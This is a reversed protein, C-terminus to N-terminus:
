FSSCRSCRQRKWLWRCRWFSRPISIDSTCGRRSWSSGSFRSSPPSFWDRRLGAAGCYGHSSPTSRCWRSMGLAFYSLGGITGDDSNRLGGILAMLNFANVSTEHYYAATSTYLKLIWNWRPWDSVARHWQDGGRGARRRIQDVDRLRDRADDVIWAGAPDDLGAAQGAGGDRGAGMCTRIGGGSDRRPEAAHCVDADFRETGLDRHRLAAAPNLAVMLMAIFAMLATRNGLRVFAYMLIALAFDAVIAPSEIIVRSFDGTAGIAQSILGVVWLAYLYGPPYDLFYGEQYTHAPGLTAIQSAWAQYSGVDPGFGPFFPMVVLKGAAIVGLVVLAMPLGSDPDDILPGLYDFLAYCVLALLLAGAVFGAFKGTPAVPGAAAAISFLGLSAAALATKPARVAWGAPRDGM